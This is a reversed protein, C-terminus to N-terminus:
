SFNFTFYFGRCPRAVTRASRERTRYYNNKVNGASSWFCILPKASM